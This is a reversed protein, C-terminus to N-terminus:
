QQDCGLGLRISVAQGCRVIMFLRQISSCIDQLSNWHHASTSCSRQLSDDGDVLSYDVHLVDQVLSILEQVAHNDFSKSHLAGPFNYIHKRLELHEAGDFVFPLLPINQISNKM